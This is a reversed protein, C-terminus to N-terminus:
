RRRAPDHRRRYRHANVRDACRKSCWRRGAARSTDVFLTSCNGAACERIRGVDSGGLLRVASRAVTALVADVSPPDSHALHGTAGLQPPLDAKKAWGNINRRDNVAVATGKIASRVARHIAERLARAQELDSTGAPHAPCGLGADRCWRDLDGPVRLREINARWREGVTAVFNLALDGGKFLFEREDASVEPERNVRRMVRLM